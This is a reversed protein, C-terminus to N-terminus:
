RSERVAEVVSRIANVVAAPDDLQIRHGADAVLEHRGASSWTSEEVHMQIWDEHVRREPETGRFFDIKAGSLVVLPRAGLDHASAVEAFTQPIADAEDLESARSVPRYADVIRLAEDPEASPRAGFRNLGTWALWTRARLMPGVLPAREGTIAASREFQHPHSPDVLVLGAVETGFRQTFTVVYPGGMSHGVLVYPPREGASQLLRHLDQAVAAGNRSGSAPESWLIGARSYSCARTFAAVPDQVKYWSLAGNADLGSEFIVLPAGTGRCDIQLRRGGIDIM